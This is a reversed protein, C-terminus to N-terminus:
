YGRRFKKVQVIIDGELSASYYGRGELVFGDVAITYLNIGKSGRRKEEVGKM